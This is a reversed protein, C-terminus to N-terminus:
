AGEVAPRFREVAGRQQQAARLQRAWCGEPAALARDIEDRTTIEGRTKVRTSGAMGRLFAKSLRQM